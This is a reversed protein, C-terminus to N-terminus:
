EPVMGAKLVGELLGDKGLAAVSEAPFAWGAANVLGFAASVTRGLLTCYEQDPITAAAAVSEPQPMIYREVFRLAASTM